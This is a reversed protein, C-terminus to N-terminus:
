SDVTQMFDLLEVFWPDNDDWARAQGLAFDWGGWIVVDNTRNAVTELQLRWYTDGVYQYQLTQNSNHYDMWLFPAIRKTPAIRRTEAINGDAYMVWSLPKDYFTYLSPFMFDTEGALAKMRDNWNPWDLSEQSISNIVGWYSRYPPRAYFGSKVSPAAAHSWQLVNVYKEVSAWATCDDTNIPWTEVDFFVAETGAAEHVAMATQVKAKDAAETNVVCQAWIDKVVPLPKIGHVSLDSKATYLTADWVQFPRDQEIVLDAVWRADQRM